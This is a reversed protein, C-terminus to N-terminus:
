RLKCLEHNPCSYPINTVFPYLCKGMNLIIIVLMVVDFLKSTVITRLKLYKNFFNRVHDWWSWKFMYKQVDKLSNVIDCGQFFMEPNMYGSNNKDLSEFVKKVKKEDHKNDYVAAIFTSWQNHDIYGRKQHDLIIFSLFLAEKQTLRDKLLIKASNVRFAEFVVAVPIPLIIFM